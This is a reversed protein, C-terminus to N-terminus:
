LRSQDKEELERKWLLAEFLEKIKEADHRGAESMGIPSRIDTKGHITVPRDERVLKQMTAPEVENGVHPREPNEAVVDLILHTRESKRDEVQDAATDGTKVCTSVFGSEVIGDTPAEPAIAPTSPAYRINKRCRSKNNQKRDEKEREKELNWGDKRKDEPEENIQKAACRRQGTWLFHAADRPPRM